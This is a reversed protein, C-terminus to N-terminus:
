RRPLGPEGPRGAPAGTALQSRDVDQVEDVLLHGCRGRWRALLDPDAELRDLARRVLDDFDLAGRAALAAEYRVFARAVPDPRRTRRSRARRGRRLELKLRSFATDYRGVDEADLGPVLEALIRRGTSSTACTSAPM